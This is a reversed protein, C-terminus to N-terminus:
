SCTIHVPEGEMTCATHKHMHARMQEQGGIAQGLSVSCIVQGVACCRGEGVWGKELM